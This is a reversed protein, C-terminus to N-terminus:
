DATCYVIQQDRLGMFFTDLDIEDAIHYEGSEFVVYRVGYGKSAIEEAHRLASKLSGFPGNSDGKAFSDNPMTTESRM